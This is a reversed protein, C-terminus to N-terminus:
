IVIEINIVKTYIMLILMIACIILLERDIHQM